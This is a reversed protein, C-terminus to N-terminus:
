KTITIQFIDRDLVSVCKQLVKVHWLLLSFCDPFAHYCHGQYIQLSLSLNLFHKLKTTHLLVSLGRTYMTKYFLTGTYHNQWHMYLSWFSKNKCLTSVYSCRKKNKKSEFFFFFIICCWVDHWIYIHTKNVVLLVGLQLTSKLIKKFSKPKQNCELEHKSLMYTYFLFHCWFLVRMSFQAQHKARKSNINVHSDIFHWYLCSHLTAFELIIACM